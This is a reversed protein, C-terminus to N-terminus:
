IKKVPTLGRLRERPCGEFSGDIIERLAKLRTDYCEYEDMWEEAEEVLSLYELCPGYNKYLTDAKAMLKSYEAYIEQKTM